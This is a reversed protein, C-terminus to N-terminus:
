TASRKPRSWTSSATSCPAAPSSARRPRGPAPRTSRRSCGPPRSCGATVPSSSWTRAPTAAPAPFVTYLGRDIPEGTPTAFPPWRPAARAPGSPLRRHGSGRGRLGRHREAAGGRPGLPRAAHRPRRHPRLADPCPAVDAGEAQREAKAAVRRAAAETSCRRRAGATRKLRERALMWQQPISAINSVAYYLNLGSAFNLFLFTMMVPMIYLMMKMQPNPEM